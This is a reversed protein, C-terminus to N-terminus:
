LGVIGGALALMLSETLPQRVIRGRGAGVAARIAIERQRAAARALLLNAINACAILLVLGVAGLLILLAPRVNGTIQQRMLAIRIETNNRFAQSHSEIYRKNTAAMQVNAQALTTSGSLRGSVTLIGAYNASNPDAQLPIWVDAPPIPKFSPSLVGVI